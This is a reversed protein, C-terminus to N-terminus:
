SPLSVDGAPSRWVTTIPDSYSTRNSWLELPDSGAILRVDIPIKSRERNGYIFGVTKQPAWLTAAAAPAAASEAAPAAEGPTTVALAALPTLILAAAAAM